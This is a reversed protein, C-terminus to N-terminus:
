FSASPPAVANVTVEVDFTVTFQYDEGSAEAVDLRLTATFEDQRLYPTVDADVVDLVLRQPATTSNIALTLNEGRAVIREAAGPASLSLVAEDVVVQNEPGFPFDMNLEVTGAAISAGAVDSPEFRTDNIIDASSESASGSFMEGSALAAASYTFGAPREETLPFEEGGPDDATDCGVVVLAFLLTLPLFRRIMTMSTPILFPIALSLRPSPGELLVRPREPEAM